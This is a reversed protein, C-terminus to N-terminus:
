DYGTGQNVLVRYEKKYSKLQGNPLKVEYSIFIKEPCKIFSNDSSYGCNLHINLCGDKKDTFEIPTNQPEIWYVEVDNGESLCDYNSFGGFLTDTKVSIPKQVKIIIPEQAQINGCYLLLFLIINKKLSM